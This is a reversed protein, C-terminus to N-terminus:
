RESGEPVVGFTVDVHEAQGHVATCVVTDLGRKEGFRKSFSGETSTITLDIVILHRGDITWHSPANGPPEVMLVAGGLSPCDVAFPKTLGHGHPTQAAVPSATLVFAAAAATPFLLRKM